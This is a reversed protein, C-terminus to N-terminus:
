GCAFTMFDYAQPMDFCRFCGSEATETPPFTQNIFSTLASSRCQNLGVILSGPSSYGSRVVTNLLFTDRSVDFRCTALFASSCLTETQSKFIPDNIDPITPPPLRLCPDNTYLLCRQLYPSCVRHLLCGSQLCYQHVFQLQLTLKVTLHQLILVQLLYHHQCPLVLCLHSRRHITYSQPWQCAGVERSCRLM